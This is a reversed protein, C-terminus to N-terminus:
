NPAAMSQRQNECLFSMAADAVSDPFEEHIALKGRPLRETRVGPIEALAEIEARSKRPTKDGYLVLIPVNARRALDLFSERSEVRDLGGTVFRISGYRAGQTRTISLKASLRQGSLWERDDYVHGRAMKLIVFRSVNMRYLLPGVVPRDAAARIRAFWAPEGNLVTPLPGRWTPAVLVLRGTTGPRHVAQHLAYTAAHGPAVIGHPLPAVETLFWDLFRSLIEPSLDCRPRPCDGFGPWDVSAVRFDSALRESLPHMEHRTSISSLAPLLVVSPGNGDEELGLTIEFRGSKYRLKREM